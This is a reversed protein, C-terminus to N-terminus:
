GHERHAGDESLLGVAEVDQDGAGPHDVAGSARPVVGIDADETVRNRGDARQGVCVRCGANVGAAHHDRWTEDIDMRVGPAIDKTNRRRLIVEAFADRGDDFAGVATRGNREGGKQVPQALCGDRDVECAKDSLAANTGRHHAQDIPLGSGFFDFLHLLERRLGHAVAGEPERGTQEIHRSVEGGGLFHDIEGFDDAPHAANVDRV